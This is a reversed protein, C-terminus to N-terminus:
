SIRVTKILIIPIFTESLSEMIESVLARFPFAQFKLSVELESRCLKKPNGGGIMLELHFRTEYNWVQFRHFYEPESYGFFNLIVTDVSNKKKLELLTIM